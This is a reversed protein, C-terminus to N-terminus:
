ESFNMYLLTQTNNDGDPVSASKEYVLSGDKYVSLTMTALSDSLLICAASFYKVKGSTSYVKKNTFYEDISSKELDKNGETEDILSVGDMDKVKAMATYNDGSVELVAKYIATDAVSIEETDSDGCSALLLISLLLFISKLKNM